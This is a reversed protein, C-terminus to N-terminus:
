LASAGRAELTERVGAVENNGLNDLIVIDGPTLTAALVMITAVGFDLFDRLLDSSPERL